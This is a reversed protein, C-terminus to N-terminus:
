PGPSSPATITVTSNGNDNLPATGGCNDPGTADDPWAVPITGISANSASLSGAPVTSGALSFTLNVTQGIDVHKNGNCLLQFTVQPTLITGPAVTGLNASSTGSLVTDGDVLDALALSTFLMSMVVALTM